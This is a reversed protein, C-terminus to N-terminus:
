EVHSGADQLREDLADSLACPLVDTVTVGDDAAAAAALAEADVGRPPREPGPLRPPGWRKKPM